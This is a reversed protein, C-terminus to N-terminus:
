LSSDSTFFALVSTGYFSKAIYSVQTNTVMSRSVGSLSHNKQTFSEYM